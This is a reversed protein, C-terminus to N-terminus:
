AAAKGKRAKKEAARRERAKKALYTRHAERWRRRRDIGKLTREYRERRARGKKSEDYKRDIESM